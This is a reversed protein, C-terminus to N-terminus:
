GAGDAARVRGAGVGGLLLGCPRVEVVAFEVGVLDGVTGAGDQFGVGDAVFGVADVEVAVAGAVGEGEVSGAGVDAGAAGGAAGGGVGVVGAVPELAVGVPV